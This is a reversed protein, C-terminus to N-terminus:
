KNSKSRSKNNKKLVENIAEKLMKKTKNTPEQNIRELVKPIQIILITAVIAVHLITLYYLTNRLKKECQCNEKEYDKIHTFITYYNLVFPILTIFFSIWFSPPTGGGSQVGSYNKMQLSLDVIGIVSLILTFYKIYNLKWDKSCKCSQKVKHAYYFVFCYYALFLFTKILEFCKNM